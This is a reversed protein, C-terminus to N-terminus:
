RLQLPNGSCRSFHSIHSLAVGLGEVKSESTSVSKLIQNGLEERRLRTKGEM